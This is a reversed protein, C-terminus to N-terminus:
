LVATAQGGPPGSQWAPLVLDSWYAILAVDPAPPGEACCAPLTGDPDLCALLEMNTPFGTLTAVCFGARSASDAAAAVVTKEPTALGAFMQTLADGWSAVFCWTDARLAM